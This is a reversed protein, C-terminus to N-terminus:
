LCHTCASLHMFELQAAQNVTIFYMVSMSAVGWIWVSLM